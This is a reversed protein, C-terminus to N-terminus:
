KFARLKNYRDAFEQLEEILTSTDEDGEAGCAMCINQSSVAKSGCNLCLYAKENPNRALWNRGTKQLTLIGRDTSKSLAHGLYDGVCDAKDALYDWSFCEVLNISLLSQAFFHNLALYDACIKNLSDASFIIEFHEIRNRLDKAQLLLELDEPSLLSPDKAQIFKIANRLSITRKSEPPDYLAAPDITEIYAKLLLESSQILHLLAFKFNYKAPLRSFKSVNFSLRGKEDRWEVSHSDDDFTRDNECNKAQALYLHEIAHHLTHLGNQRLNLKIM